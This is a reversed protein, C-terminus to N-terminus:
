RLGNVVTKSKALEVTSPRTKTSVNRERMAMLAATKLGVLQHRRFNYIDELMDLYADKTAYAILKERCHSAGRILRNADFDPVRCVAMCAELLRSSRIEKCMTVLPVYIHAVSDAFLQDKIQFHGSKFADQINSYGLTGALLAFAMGISLNHQKAFELGRQYPKLGNDAYMQAYDIPRWTETTTNIEAVDFITQVEVYYVSLGLKEAIALRHQGDKVILNNKPDRGVIVPFGEIFGHKKMSAELKRHKQINLPRNEGSSTHFLRYDRTNLIKAM